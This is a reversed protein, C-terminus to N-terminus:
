SYFVCAGPGIKVPPQDDLMQDGEGSIFFLVEDAHEHNHRAHGKGPQLVVMGFTMTEGGACGPCSLLKINGWDFSLTEVDDGYVVHCRGIEQMVGWFLKFNFNFDFKFARLAFCIM